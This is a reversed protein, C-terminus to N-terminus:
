RLIEVLLVWSNALGAILAFLIAPAIWYLGGGSAAILSIGAVAVLVPIVISPLLRTALWGVRPQKDTRQSPRNLTSLIGGIVVGIVILESGLLTRSQSPILMVIGLVMPVVFLVM